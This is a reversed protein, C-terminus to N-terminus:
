LVVHSVRWVMLCVSVYVGKFVSGINCPNTLVNCHTEWWKRPRRPLLNLCNAWHLFHDSHRRGSVSCYIWALRSTGSGYVHQLTMGRWKGTWPLFFVLRCDNCIKLQVWPSFFFFTWLVWLGTRKFAMRWSTGLWKIEGRLTHTHTHAETRHTDTHVYM